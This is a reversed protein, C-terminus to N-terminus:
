IGHDMIKKGYLRILIYLILAYLLLFKPVIICPMRQIHEYCHMVICLHTIGVTGFYRPQEGKPCHLLWGVDDPSTKRDQVM